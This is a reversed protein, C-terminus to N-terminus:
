KYKYKIIKKIILIYWYSNLIFLFIPAVYYIWKEPINLANILGSSHQEYMISTYYFFPLIRGLGWFIFLLIGNYFYLKTKELGMKYLWWRNNIFPTTIETIHFFVVNVQCYGTYLSGICPILCMIHHFIMVYGGINYLICTILDSLFFGTSIALLTKTESILYLSSFTAYFAFISNSYRTDWDRKESIQLDNYKKGINWPLLPTIYRSSLFCLYTFFASSLTTKIIM